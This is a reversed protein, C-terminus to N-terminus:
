RCLAQLCSHHQTLWSTRFWCLFARGQFYARVDAMIGIGTEMPDPPLLAALSSPDVSHLGLRTLASIAENLVNKMKSTEPDFNRMITNTIMLRDRKYHDLFKKRYETYYHVNSTFPEHEDILLFGIQQAAADACKQIHSLM